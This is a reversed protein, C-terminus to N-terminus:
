FISAEMNLSVFLTRLYRFVSSPHCFVLSASKIQAIWREGEIFIKEEKERWLECIAYPFCCNIFFSRPFSSLQHGQIANIKEDRYEIRFIGLVAYSKCCFVTKLKM